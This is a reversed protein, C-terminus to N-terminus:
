IIPSLLQYWAAILQMSNETIKVRQGLNTNNKKIIFEM